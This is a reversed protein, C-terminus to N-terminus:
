RDLAEQLATRSNILEAAIGQETTGQVLSENLVGAIVFVLGTLAATLVVWDVTVAGKESSLFRVMAHKAHGIM